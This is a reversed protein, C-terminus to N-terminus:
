YDKPFRRSLVCNYIENKLEGICKPMLDELKNYSTEDINFYKMLVKKCNKSKDPDIMDATIDSIKLNLELLLDNIESNKFKGINIM